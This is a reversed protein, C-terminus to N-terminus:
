GHGLRHRLEPVPQPGRVGPLQTQLGCPALVTPQHHHLHGAELPDAKQQCIAGLLHQLLFGHLLQKHGDKLVQHMGMVLHNYGGQPDHSLNHLSVWHLLQGDFIEELIAAHVAECGWPSAGRHVEERLDHLPQEQDKGVLALHQLRPATQHDALETAMQIGPPEVDRHRAGYLLLGVLVKRLLQDLGEVPDEEGGRFGAPEPFFQQLFGLGM